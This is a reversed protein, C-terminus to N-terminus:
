YDTLQTNVFFFLICVKSRWTKWIQPLYQISALLMSVLGLFDAWYKTAPSDEPRGYFKLIFLTIFVTSIFHVTVFTAVGMSIRWELSWQTPPSNFHLHRIYPVIKRYPPFYIMFLALILTFM